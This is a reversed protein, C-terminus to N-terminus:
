TWLQSNVSYIEASLAQLM